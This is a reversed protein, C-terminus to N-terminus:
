PAPEPAALFATTSLSPLAGAVAWQGLVYAARLRRMVWGSGIYAPRAWDAADIRARPGSPAAGVAGVQEVVGDTAAACLQVVWGTGVPVAVASRGAGAGPERVEVAGAGCDRLVDCLGDGARCGLWDSTGAPRWDVETVALVRGAVPEAASVWTPVWAPSVVARM